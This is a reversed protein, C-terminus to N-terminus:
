MWLTRVNSTKDYEEIYAWNITWLRWLGRITEPIKLSPRTINPLRRLTSPSKRCYLWYHSIETFSKNISTLTLATSIVNVTIFSPLPFCSTTGKEESEDCAILNRVLFHLNAVSFGLSGKTQCTELKWRWITSCKRYPINFNNFEANINLVNKTPIVNIKRM